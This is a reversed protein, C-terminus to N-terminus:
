PIWAACSSRSRLMRSRQTPICSADCRPRPSPIAGSPWRRRPRWWHAPLRGPGTGIRVLCFDSDGPRREWMRAGGVLTWLSAPDPHCWMLSLYQAAATKAVLSRLETLYKLYDARDGDLEAVRQDTRVATATVIVSVLIMAPFVLLMPNRGPPRSGFVAMMAATAAAMVVPLLRVLLSNRAPRCGSAAACGRDARDLLDATGVAAGACLGDHKHHRASEDGVRGRRTAWM